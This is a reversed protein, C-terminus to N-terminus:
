SSIPKNILSNLSSIKKVTLKKFRNADLSNKYITIILSSGEKLIERNIELLESFIFLEFVSKRDSFKIIAYSNGKQTKKEQVKLITGSINAEKIEKNDNFDDFNIIKYSELLDSYQNLPHDSIYFGLSEFEKSLKEDFSWDNTKNTLEEEDKEENQFTFNSPLKIKMFIRQNKFLHLFQILYPNEIIILSM